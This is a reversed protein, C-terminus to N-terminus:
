AAHAENNTVSVVISSAEANDHYYAEWDMSVSLGQPGNIEPANEAFQIEPCSISVISDAAGTFLHTMPFEAGARAAELITTDTFVLDHAGSVGIIADSLIGVKGGGGIFRTDTGMNFAIKCSTGTSTAVTSGGREISAHSNDLEALDVVAAAAHFSATEIAMDQGVIDMNMELGGEEGVALSVGNVKCGTFRFYRPSVLDLFQHEITISPRKTTGTMKFKHVYPGEGTTALTNFMAKFWYWSAISDLPVTVTGAVTINGNGPKSPNFDGRIVKSRTKNRTRKLTSKIIPMVFGATAITGFDPEFGLLLRSLAGTAQQVTM